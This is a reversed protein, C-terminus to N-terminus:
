RQEVRLDLLKKAHSLRDTDPALNPPARQGTRGIIELAEKQTIARQSLLQILPRGKDDNFSLPGGTTRCVGCTRVIGTSTFQLYVFQPGGQCSCPFSASNARFLGVVWTRMSANFSIWEFILEKSWNLEKYAQDIQEQNEWGTEPPRPLPM